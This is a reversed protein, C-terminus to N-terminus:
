KMNKKNLGPMIILLRVIKNVLFYYNMLWM